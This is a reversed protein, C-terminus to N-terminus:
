DESPCVDLSVDSHSVMDSAGRPMHVVIVTLRHATRERNGYKRWLCEFDALRKLTRDQLFARPSRHGHLIRQWIMGAVTMGSPM